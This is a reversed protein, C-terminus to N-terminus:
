GWVARAGSEGVLLIMVLAGVGVVLALAKIVGSVITRSRGHISMRDRFAYWVWEAIAVVLLAVAWAPMMLGFGTHTQVAPIPGVQAALHQGALVTIPVAVMLALAALPTLIGLRRRATPWWAHVIVAGATIPVLAIVAHVLLPHLPLGNVTFDAFDM